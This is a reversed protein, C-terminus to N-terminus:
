APRQPAASRAASDFMSGTPITPPIAAWTAEARKSDLSELQAKGLLWRTESTTSDNPFDRLQTELASIYATRSAGPKKLTLAQGRALALLLGAKPEGASAAPDDTVRSLLRDAEDFKGAEFLLAGARLRFTAAKEKITSRRAQPVSPVKRSSRRPVSGIAWRSGGKRSCRGPTSARTRDPSRSGKAALEM